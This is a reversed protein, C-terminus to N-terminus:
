QAGHAEALSSPWASCSLTVHQSESGVSGFILLLSINKLCLIASSTDM